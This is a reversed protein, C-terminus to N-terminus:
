QDNIDRRMKCDTVKYRAGADFKDHIRVLKCAYFPKYIYNLLLEASNHLTFLWCIAFAVDM